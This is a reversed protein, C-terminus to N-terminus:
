DDPQLYVSHTVIVTRGEATFVFFLHLADLASQSLTTAHVAKAMRKVVGICHEDGFVWHSAPNRKTVAIKSLLHQFLHVKPIM